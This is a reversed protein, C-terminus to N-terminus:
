RQAHSYTPTPPPPYVDLGSFYTPTPENFLELQQIHIPSLRHKREYSARIMPYIGKQWMEALLYFTESDRGKETVEFFPYRKDYLKKKSVKKIYKAKILVATADCFLTSKPLVICFDPLCLNVIERSFARELAPITPFIDNPLLEMDRALAVWSILCILHRRGLNFSIEKDSYIRAITEFDDLPIPYLFELM